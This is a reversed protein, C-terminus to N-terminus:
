TMARWHHVSLIRKQHKIIITTTLILLTTQTQTADNTPGRLYLLLGLGFSSETHTVTSSCTINNM